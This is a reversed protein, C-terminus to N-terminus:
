FDNKDIVDIVLRSLNNGAVPEVNAPEVTTAALTAVCRYPSKSSPSDIAASALNLTVLASGLSGPAVSFSTATVSVSGPPCDGIDSLQLAVSHGGPEVAPAIDANRIKMSLSKGRAFQGASITLTKPVASLLVSEHPTSLSAQTLDVVNVEVPVVNNRPTTENVNPQATVVSAFLTCRYPALKNYTGFVGPLVSLRLQAKKTKGALVAITSQDGLSHVDFDPQGVVIQSPCDGANINLGILHGAPELSADLDANRVKIGVKKSAGTSGATLTISVPKVALVVSDHPTGTPSPTPTSSQTPTTTPTGTPGGKIMTFNDVVAGTSNVFSAQLQGHDIDLVLSGLSLLSVYMAPHNLAAATTQGSSGAVVYVAGEHAAGGLSAKTYAGNGSPRGDGGDLIMSGTLSTSLGYHSDLLVSREYSHSHGTLVLDVGHAELIPLVNTRMDILEAETDSNHSGKTYPPHHWFAITWDAVTAMLDSTLWTLMAGGPSRDSDMSDLCIFHINGYDFSYYAETGSAVGGAEGAAPLSFIDYYPGTQTMSDASMADHNGLTPWLVLSRLFSPYMAFVANQYQVDTGSQYANDGLMLWFDAPHAASFTSYASAVALANADATGSDGLVWIRTAKPTGAQPATTFTYSADGALTAATSGVSYYYTADAALGSLPVVHEITSTAVDAVQTLNLPSLGYRVRSNNAVDTRWRVILSSSTGTQLYPGRTVTVAAATTAAVSGAVVALLFITLRRTM